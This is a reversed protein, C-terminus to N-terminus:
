ESQLISPKALRTAKKRPNWGEVVRIKPVAIMMPRYFFIRGRLSAVDVPLNYLLPQIRQKV